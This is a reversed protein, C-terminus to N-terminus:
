EVKVKLSGTQLHTHATGASAAGTAVGGHAVPKTLAKDGIDVNGLINKVRMLVVYQHGQKTEALVVRDPPALILEDNVILEGPFELQIDTDDDLVIILPEAQIVTGFELPSYKKRKDVDTRLMALLRSYSM